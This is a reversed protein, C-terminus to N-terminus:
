ERRVRTGSFSSMEALGSAKHGCALLISYIVRGCAEADIYNSFVACKIYYLRGDAITRERLDTLCEKCNTRLLARKFIEPARELSVYWSIQLYKPM